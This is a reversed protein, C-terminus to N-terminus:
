VALFFKGERALAFVIIELSSAWMWEYEHFEIDVVAAALPTV